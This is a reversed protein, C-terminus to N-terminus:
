RDPPRVQRTQTRANLLRVIGVLIIAVGLLDPVRMVHTAARIAAPPWARYAGFQSVLISSGFILIGLPVLRSGARSRRIGALDLLLLAAVLLWLAALVVVIALAM